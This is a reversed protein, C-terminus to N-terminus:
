NKGRWENARRGGQRQVYREANEYGALARDSRLGTAALGRTHSLTTILGCFVAAHLGVILFLTGSRLSFYGFNRDAVTIFGRAAAAPIAAPVASRPFEHVIMVTAWCCGVAFRLRSLASCRSESDALWEEELRSSLCEPARRAAHRILWHTVDDLELQMSRQNRQSM